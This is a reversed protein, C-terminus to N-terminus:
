HACHCVSVSQDGATTASKDGLVCLLKCHPNRESSCHSSSTSLAGSKCGVLSEEEGGEVFEALLTLINALHKQLISYSIPKKMPKHPCLGIATAACLGCHPSHPSSAMARLPPLGSM